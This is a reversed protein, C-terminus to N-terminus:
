GSGQGGIDVRIKTGVVLVASRNVRVQTGVVLALANSRSQQLWVPVRVVASIVTNSSRMQTPRKQSGDNISNRRETTM